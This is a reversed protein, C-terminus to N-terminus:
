SLRRQPGRISAVVARMWASGSSCSSDRASANSSKLPGASRAAQSSSCLPQPGLAPLAATRSAGAPEAHDHSRHGWGERCAGAGEPESRLGAWDRQRCPTGRTSCGWWFWPLQPWGPWHNASSQPPEESISGAPTAPTYPLLSLIGQRGRLTRIRHQHESLPLLEPLKIPGGQCRHLRLSGRLPQTLRSPQKVGAGHRIRRSRARRPQPHPNHPLSLPLPAPTGTGAPLPRPHLLM